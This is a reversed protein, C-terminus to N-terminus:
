VRLLRARVLYELERASARRSRSLAAAGRGRELRGGRRRRARLASRRRAPEAVSGLAWGCAGAPDERRRDRQIGFRRAARVRVAGDALLPGRDCRGGGGRRRAAPPSAASLRARRASGPLLVPAREGRRVGLRRRD